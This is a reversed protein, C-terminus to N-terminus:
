ANISRDTELSSYLEASSLVTGVFTGDTVLIKGNTLISATHEGRADNMSGVSTWIETLPDYTEATNIANSDFEGIPLVKGNTVVSITHEGRADNM